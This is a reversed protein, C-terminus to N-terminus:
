SKPAGHARLKERLGHPVEHPHFYIVGNREMAPDARLAMVWWARTHVDWFWIEFVREGDLVLVPEQERDCEYSADERSLNLILGRAM